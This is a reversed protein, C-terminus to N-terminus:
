SYTLTQNDGYRFLTFSGAEHFAVTRKEKPPLIKTKKELGGVVREIAAELDHLDVAKKGNRAAILAAENCVNGIDAGVLWWSIV